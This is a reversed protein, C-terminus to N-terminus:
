RYERGVSFWASSPISAGGALRPTISVALLSQITELQVQRALMGRTEPGDGKAVEVKYPPKDLIQIKNSIGESTKFHLEYGSAGQVEKWTLVWFTKWEHYSMNQKVYRQVEDVLVSSVPEVSQEAARAVSAFSLQIGLFILILLPTRREETIFLRQNM